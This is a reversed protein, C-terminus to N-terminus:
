QILSSSIRYRGATGGAMAIVKVFVKQGANVDVSANENAASGQLDQDSKATPKTLDATTYVELGLDVQSDGVPRLIITLAGSTKPTFVFWDWSDGDTTDLSDEYSRGVELPKANAPRKDPDSPRARPPFPIWAAGIQFKGGAGDVLKILVRYTGPETITVLVQEAGPNNNLDRDSNGEPITQGDEDVISIALDSDGSTAVSLLGAGSAAFTYVAPGNSSIQGTEFKGIPLSAAQQALGSRGSALGIILFAFVLLRLSRSMAFVIAARM